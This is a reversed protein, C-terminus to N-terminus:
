LYGGTEKCIEDLVQRPKSPLQATGVVLTFSQDRVEFSRMLLAYSGRKPMLLMFGMGHGLQAAKAIEDGSKLFGPLRAALETLEDSGAECISLGENNTVEIWLFDNEDLMEKLRSKLSM